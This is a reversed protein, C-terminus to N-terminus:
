AGGTDPATSSQDNLLDEIADYRRVRDVPDIGLADVLSAILTEVLAFGPTISDFPSAAAVANSLLYDSHRAAPSLWPDTILVTTAKQAKSQRMFEVTSEQYRRYDFAVVVDKAGIDLLAFAREQQSTPVHTVNPRLHRLHMSLYEALLRSFRGGTTWVRRKTTALLMVISSFDEVALGSFTAAIGQEIVRQSHDAAGDRTADSQGYMTAPSSTRAAIEGHLMKQMDPYSGIGLKSLLRLVTPASVNAREALRNVPELGAVPYDALLARSVRREAPSLGEYSKKLVEALTLSEDM